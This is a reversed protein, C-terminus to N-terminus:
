AGRRTCVMQPPKWGPVVKGIRPDDPDTIWGESRPERGEKWGQRAMDNSPKTPVDVGQFPTTRILLQRTNSKGVVRKFLRGAREAYFVYSSVTRIDVGGLLQAVERGTFTRDPEAELAALLHVMKGSPTYPKTPAKPM